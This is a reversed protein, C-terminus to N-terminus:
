QNQARNIMEEAHARTQATMELGGLMRAIEQVRGQSTLPVIQASTRSETRIKTVQFHHHAQAAVQPLHTVCLIQHAAGLSHLQRGVTEAVAGGIGTDVEDYVLTPITMSQAAVVMQIALSIRSLEGGSAVKTLPKLPQGPNTTVRYEVRDLGSASRQTAEMPEVAIRFQGHEMGLNQMAATTQRSLKEAAGLRSQRIEFALQRYADEVEDLCKKLTEPNDEPRELTNLEAALTELRSPLEDPTVRHKRALEQLLGIRNEVWELRKPDAELHSSYRRLGQAAEDIQVQAETLLDRYEALNADIDTLDDLASILRELQGHLALEDTEYLTFYAAQCTQRLREVNVLRQHEDGLVHIENFELNLDRLEQVQYRLLDVRAQHEEQENTLTELKHKIKQWQQFLTALRQLRQENGAQTDLLIRQMDRRLLSQHAHQGHIDILMEGLSRITGLPSPIGNIYARSRGDRMITRRLMVESEADIGHEALWAYATPLDSIDIVVSIDAKMAGHRVTTSDARDGLVLGLAEVIISKGAGTEGTLVCMGPKLELDLHDIITFDRIHIHTLM